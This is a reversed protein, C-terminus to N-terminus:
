SVDSSFPSPFVPPLQHPPATGPGASLMLIGDPPVCGVKDALKDTFLIDRLPIILRFPNVKVTLPVIVPEPVSVPEFVELRIMPPLAPVSLKM